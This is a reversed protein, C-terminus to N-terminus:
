KGAKARERDADIVDALAAARILRKIFETANRGDGHQYESRYSSLPVGDPVGFFDRVERELTKKAM